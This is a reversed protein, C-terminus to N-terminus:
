KTKLCKTYNIRYNIATADQLYAFFGTGASLNCHVARTSTGMLGSDLALIDTLGFPRMRPADFLVKRNIATCKRDLVIFILLLLLLLLVM